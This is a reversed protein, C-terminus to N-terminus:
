DGGMIWCTMSAMTLSDLWHRIYPGWFPGNCLLHTFVATFKISAM